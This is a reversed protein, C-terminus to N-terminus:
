DVLCGGIGNLGTKGARRCTNDAYLVQHVQDIYFIDDGDIDTAGASVDAHDHVAVDFAGLILVDAAIGHPNRRNINGGDTCAAAADGPYIIAPDQLDAGLAGTCLGSRGAICSAAGLSGDGIGAHHKTM